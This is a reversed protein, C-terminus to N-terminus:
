FGALIKVRRQRNKQRRRHRASESSPSPSPSPSLWHLNSPSIKGLKEARHFTPGENANQGGTLMRACALLDAPITASKEFGLVLDLMWLASFLLFFWFGGYLIWYFSLVGVGELVAHM